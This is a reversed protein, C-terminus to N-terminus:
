KVVKTLFGFIRNILEQYTEEWDINCDLNNDLTISQGDNMNIILKAAYSGEDNYYEVDKISSIKQVKIDEMKDSSISGACIINKTFCFITVDSNEDRSFLNKIYYEVMAEDSVFTEIKTTLKYLRDTNGNKFRQLRIYEKLKEINFDM